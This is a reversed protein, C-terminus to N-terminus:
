IGINKKRTKTLIIKRMSDGFIYIALVLHALALVFVICCIYPGLLLYLICIVFINALICGCRSHCTSSCDLHTWVKHIYEQHLHCHVTLSTVVFLPVVLVMVFRLQHVPSSWSRLSLSFFFAPKLSAGITTGWEGWWSGDHGHGVVFCRIHVIM